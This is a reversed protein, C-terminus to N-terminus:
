KTTYTVLSVHLLRSSTYEYARPPSAFTTQPRTTFAQLVARALM